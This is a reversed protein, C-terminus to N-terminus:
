QIWRYVLSKGTYSIEIEDGAKIPVEARLIAKGGIVQVMANPMCSHNMMALTPELFVGTQGLDDDAYNFANTQIKCLLEVARVVAQEDRQKGAYVCAGIAMMEADKRQKSGMAPIHGQLNSVAKIVGQDELLLIQMLLRVPTPLQGRADGQKEREAVVRKLAACEKGHVSKWAARQCDANCYYASRCRTCARPDGARLCRACVSEIHSLTPIILLPDVTLITQGATFSTSAHLSRGRGSLPDQRVEVNPHDPPMNLTIVQFPVLSILSSITLLSPKETLPLELKETLTTDGVISYIMM